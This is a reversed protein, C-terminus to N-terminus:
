TSSLTMVGAHNIADFLALSMVESSTMLQRKIEAPIRKCFFISEATRTNQKGTQKTWQLYLM